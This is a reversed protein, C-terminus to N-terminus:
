RSAVMNDGAIIASEPLYIVYTVEEKIEQGKIIILDNDKKNNVTLQRTNADYDKTLEYRGGEVVFELLRLNDSSIVVTTELLIRTGRTEKYVVKVNNGKIDVNIKDADYAAFTQTYKMSAQAFSSVAAFFCIALTLFIYRKM